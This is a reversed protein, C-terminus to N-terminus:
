KSVADYLSDGIIHLNPLTLLMDDLEERTYKMRFKVGGVVISRLNPMKRLFELDKMPTNFIALQELNCLDTLPSYDEIKKFGEIHLAILSSLKSLVAIDKIRAAEGLYLYKIHQLKVLPSLDSYSGWKLRLEELNEQYCAAAFLAQPVSTNFHLAKIAKTNTSLFDVWEKLIRRQERDSYGKTGNNGEFVMGPLQTCAICVQERGDYDKLENFIKNEPPFGGITGFYLKTTQEDSLVQIKVNERRNLHATKSCLEHHEYRFVGEKVTEYEKDQWLKFFLGLREIRGWRTYTEPFYNSTIVNAPAPMNGIYTLYDAPYDNKRFLELLNYMQLTRTAYPYDFPLLRISTIEDLAPINDFLKDFVHVRMLIDDTFHKGEGIKQILMYKGRVGYRESEGTHFLYAYVDGINWLNQTLKVPKRIKKEPPMQTNLLAKLEKLTRKWGSADSGRWLAVGGNKEIWEMANAKVNPMLRGVQWQTDALAYWFLPIDDPSDEIGSFMEITKSYAEQNSLQDQLYKTYTDRVDCTIDNDYLSTGWAGM